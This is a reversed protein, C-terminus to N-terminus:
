RNAEDKWQEVKRKYDEILDLIKETLAADCNRVIELKIKAIEEDMVM